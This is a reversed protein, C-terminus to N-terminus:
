SYKLKIRFKLVFNTMFLHTMMMMMAEDSCSLERLRFKEFKRRRVLFHNFSGVRILKVDCDAQVLLAFKQM